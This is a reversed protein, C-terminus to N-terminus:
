SDPRMTGGSALYGMLEMQNPARGISNEWAKALLMWSEPSNGNFGELDFTDLTAFQRAISVSPQSRQQPSQTQPVSQATPQPTPKITDHNLDGNDSGSEIAMDEEGDDPQDPQDPPL